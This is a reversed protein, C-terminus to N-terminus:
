GHQTPELDALMVSLQGTCVPCWARYCPPFLARGPGGDVYFSDQLRPVLSDTWVLGQQPSKHKPVCTVRVPSSLVWDQPPCYASATVSTGLAECHSLASGRKSPLAMKDTSRRWRQSTVHCPWSFVLDEEETHV